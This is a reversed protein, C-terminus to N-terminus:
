DVLESFARRAPQFLLPLKLGAKGNRNKGIHLTARTDHEWSFEEESDLWMVVDADNEIDGSEKASHL